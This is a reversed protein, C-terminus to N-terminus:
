FPMVILWPRSLVNGANAGLTKAQLTFTNVGNTLATELNARGGGHSELNAAASEIRMGWVDSAAITTAGSVRYSLFIGDNAASGEFYQAGYFVLARQGEVTVGFSVSTGSGWQGNSLDAYSTATNTSTYTSDGNESDPTNWAPASGTSVLYDGASGIALNNGMSNAGDAYVLAGAGAATAACTENINDKIANMQAATLVSGSTYTPLTTWAM